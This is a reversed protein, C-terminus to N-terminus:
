VKVKKDRPISGSRQKVEVENNRDNKARSTSGSVSGTFLKSHPVVKFGSLHEFKIKKDRPVSRSRQKVEVENIRVNKARSASGSVSGTFLKEPPVVNFRSHHEVKINKARSMSGSISGTYIKEPLVVKFGSHHEVKITKARSASGSISGTYLENRPM